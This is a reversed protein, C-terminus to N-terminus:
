HAQALQPLNEVLKLGSNLLQGLESLHAPTTATLPTRGTRRPTRGRGQGTVRMDPAATVCSWWRFTSSAPFPESPRTM